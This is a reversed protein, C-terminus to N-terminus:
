TGGGSRRGGGGGHGQDSKALASRLVRAHSARQLDRKQVLDQLEETSCARVSRRVERQTAQAAERSQQVEKEAADCAEDIRLPSDPLEEQQLEALLPAFDHVQAQVAESTNTSVHRATKVRKVRRALRELSEWAVEAEWAIETAQGWIKVLKDASGSVM